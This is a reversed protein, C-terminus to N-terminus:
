LTFIFPNKPHGIVGFIRFIYLLSFPWIKINPELLSGFFVFTHKFKNVKIDRIYGFKALEEYPHITEMKVVDDCFQHVFDVSCIRTTNHQNKKKKKM